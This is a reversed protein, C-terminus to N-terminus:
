KKFKFKKRHYELFESGPFEKKPCRFQLDTLIDQKELENKDNYIINFDESLSIHGKDFLGDHLNCLLISNTPDAKENSNSESWQKIHSAILLNTSTINCFACKNQYNELLRKKLKSQGVRVKINRLIDSGSNNYDDIIDAGKELHYEEFDTLEIGEIQSSISKFTLNSFQGKNENGFGFFHIIKWSSWGDNTILEIKEKEIKRHSKGEVLFKFLVEARVKPDTTLVDNIASQNLKDM